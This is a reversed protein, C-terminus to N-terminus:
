DLSPKQAACTITEVAHRNDDITIAEKGIFASIYHVCWYKQQRDNVNKIPINENTETIHQDFQIAIPQGNVLM